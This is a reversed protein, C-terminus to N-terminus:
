LTHLLTVELPASAITGVGNLSLLGLSLPLLRLEAPLLGFIYAVLVHLLQHLEVAHM